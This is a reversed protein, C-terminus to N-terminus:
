LDPCPFSNQTCLAIFKRYSHILAFLCRKVALHMPCNLRVPLTRGFWCLLHGQMSWRSKVSASDCVACSRKVQVPIPIRAFLWFLDRVHHTILISLICVKFWILLAIYATADTLHALVGTSPIFPHRFTFLFLKQFKLVQQFINTFAFCCCYLKERVPFKQMFTVAHLETPHMAVPSFDVIHM